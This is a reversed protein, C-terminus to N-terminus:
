AVKALARRRTQSTRWRGAMNPLVLAAFV